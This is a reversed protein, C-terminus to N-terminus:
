GQEDLVERLEEYLKLFNKRVAKPDEKYVETHMKPKRPVFDTDDKLELAEAWLSDEDALSVVKWERNSPTYGALTMYIVNQLTEEIVGYGEIFPKLPKPIDCIYAESADHLLGVMQVRPSFGRAKLELCVM